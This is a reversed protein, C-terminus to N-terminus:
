RQRASSPDPAESSTSIQNVDRLQQSLFPSSWDEEEDSVRCRGRGADANPELRPNKNVM